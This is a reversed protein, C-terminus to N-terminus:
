ELTVASGPAHRITVKGSASRDLHIALDTIMFKNNVYSIVTASDYAEVTASGWAKVTASGYAEVTASGYAKVTASDYAKVTVSGWAEVTASGYAKVTASDYAKVTASGYAEVTASGWAEVTASGWAEVTASGYAKVTASGYAKVTASDYAEVTASGWAKVTASDYAIAKGSKIEHRGSLLIRLCILEETTALRILRVKRCVIKDDDCQYHDGDFEAVFVTLGSKTYWVAPDSTLHLGKECAVLRGNYEIWEGPQDGQPLPWELDGGHCSRGNKLVKYYQTVETM